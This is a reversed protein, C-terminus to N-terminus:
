TSEKYSRPTQSQPGAAWAIRLRYAAAAFKALLRTLHRSSDIVGSIPMDCIAGATLGATTVPLASNRRLTGDPTQVM